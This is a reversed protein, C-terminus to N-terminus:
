GALSARCPVLGLQHNRKLSTTPRDEAVLVPSVLRPVYQGAVMEPRLASVSIGKNLWASSLTPIARILSTSSRPASSCVISNTKLTINDDLLAVYLRPVPPCGPLYCEVEVESDIPHCKPLLSPVQCRQGSAFFLERIDDRDGLGTVGGSIACTGVAIIRKIRSAAERLKFLDDDTRIGGTVLLVDVDPVDHASVILPMYALSLDETALDGGANLMSVECGACGSLQLVAFRM